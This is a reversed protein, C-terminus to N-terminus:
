VPFSVMLHRRRSTLVTNTVSASNITGSRDRTCSTICGYAVEFRTARTIYIFMGSAYVCKVDATSKQKMDAKAKTVSKKRSDALLTVLFEDSLRLGSEPPAIM